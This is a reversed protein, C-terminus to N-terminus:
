RPNPNGSIEILPVVRKVGKVESAHTMVKKIEEQSQATGFIYVIKDFTRIVYNAPRIDEDIYLAAKIKTTIWGDRSYEAFGNDTKTNMGDIVEKVGSVRAAIRLTEKRIAEDSAVGTFLVRGKYVTLEIGDFNTLGADLVQNLRYRLVQDSVVGTLGREEAASSVIAGAGGAVFPAVCSSLLLLMSLLLSTHKM